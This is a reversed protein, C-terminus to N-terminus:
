TLIFLQNLQSIFHCIKVSDDRFKPFHQSLFCNSPTLRKIATRIIEEINEPLCCQSCEELSVQFKTPYGAFKNSFSETM